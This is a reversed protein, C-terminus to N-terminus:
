GAAAGAARRGAGAASADDASRIEGILRQRIRHLEALMSDISDMADSACRRAHADPERRASWIALLGGLDEVRSRIASLPTDYPDQRGTM